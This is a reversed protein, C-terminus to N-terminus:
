IRWGSAMVSNCANRTFNKSSALTGHESSTHNLNTARTSSIVASSATMAFSGTLDSPRAEPLLVAISGDSVLTIWDRYFCFLRRATRSITEPSPCGQSTATGSTSSCKRLNHAGDTHSVLTYSRTSPRLGTGIPGNWHASTKLRRPFNSYVAGPSSQSVYWCQFRRSGSHVTSVSTM